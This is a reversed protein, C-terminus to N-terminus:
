GMVCQFVVFEGILSIIALVFCVAAITQLMKGSYISFRKVYLSMLQCFAAMFFFFLDFFCWWAPRLSFTFIILLIVLFLALLAATVSNM